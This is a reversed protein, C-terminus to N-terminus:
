NNIVPGDAELVIIFADGDHIVDDLFVRDKM